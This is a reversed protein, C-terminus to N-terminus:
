DNSGEARKGRALSLPTLDARWRGDTPPGDRNEGDPRAVAAAAAAACAPEVVESTSGAREM